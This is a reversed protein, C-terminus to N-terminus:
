HPCGRHSNCHRRQQQKDEPSGFFFLYNKKGEDEGELVTTATEAANRAGSTTEATSAKTKQTRKDQLTAIERELSDIVSAM